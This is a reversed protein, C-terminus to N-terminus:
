QHLVLYRGIDGKMVTHRLRYFTPLLLPYRQHVLTELAANDWALHVWHRCTICWLPLRFHHLRWGRREAAATSCCQWGATCGSADNGRLPRLSYPGRHPLAVEHWKQWHPLVPHLSQSITGAPQLESVICGGFIAASLALM